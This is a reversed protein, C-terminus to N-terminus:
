SKSRTSALPQSFNWSILNWKKALPIKAWRWIIEFKEKRAPYKHQRTGFTFKQEERRCVCRTQKASKWESNLIPDKLSSSNRLRDLTKKEHNCTLELLQDNRRNAIQIRPSNTRLELLNVEVFKTTCSM